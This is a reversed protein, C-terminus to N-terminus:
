SSKELLSMMDPHIQKNQEMGSALSAIDINSYLHHLKEWVDFVDVDTRINRVFSNKKSYYSIYGFKGSTKTKTWIIFKHYPNLTCLLIACLGRVLTTYINRNTKDFKIKCESKSEIIDLSLNPFLYLKTIMEINLRMATNDNYSVHKNKCANDSHICSVCVYDFFIGMTALSTVAYAYIDSVMYVYKTSLKRGFPHNKAFSFPLIYPVTGRVEDGACDAFVTFGFDIIQSINRGENVVINEPKIDRHVLGRNHLFNIGRFTQIAVTLVLIDNVDNELLLDMMDVGGHDMVIVQDHGRRSCCIVQNIHRCSLSEESYASKALGYGTYEFDTIELEMKTVPTFVKFIYHKGNVKDFTRLIVSFSKGYLFLFKNTEINGFMAYPFRELVREIGSMREGKSNLVAVNKGFVLKSEDDMNESQKSTLCNVLGDSVLIKTCSM